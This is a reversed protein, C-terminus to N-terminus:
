YIIFFPEYKNWFLQSHDAWIFRFLIFSCYVSILQFNVYLFLFVQKYFKFMFCNWFLSDQIFSFLYKSSFNPKSKGTFLFLIKLIKESALCKSKLCFYTFRQSLFNQSCIKSIYSDVYTAFGFIGNFQVLQCGGKRLIAILTPKM